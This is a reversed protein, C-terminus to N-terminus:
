LTEKKRNPKKERTPLQSLIIAFFMVGCGIYERPSLRAGLFIAAGLAGFLAETSMLIAAPTPPCYRQGLIQLTFACGSSMVGLFLLPIAAALVDAGTCSEFILALIANFQIM